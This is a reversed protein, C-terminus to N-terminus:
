VNLLSQSGAIISPSFSVLDDVYLLSNVKTSGAFCGTGYNNLKVSLDDM